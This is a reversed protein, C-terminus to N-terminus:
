VISLVVSNLNAVQWEGVSAIRVDGAYVVVSSCCGGQFFMGSVASSLPLGLIGILCGSAFPHTGGSWQKLFNLKLTQSLM